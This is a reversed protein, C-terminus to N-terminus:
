KRTTTLAEGEGTFTGLPQRDELEQSVRLTSIQALTDGVMTLASELSSRLEAHRMRMQEIEQELERLRTRGAETMRRAETGAQEVLGEARTEADAIVRTAKKEAEVRIDEAVRHASELTKGLLRAAEEHQFAHAASKTADQGLEGKLREIQRLAGQYESLLNSVFALVEARDFGFLRSRFVVADADTDNAKV